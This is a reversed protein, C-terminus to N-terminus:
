HNKLVFHLICYGLAVVLLIIMIALWSWQNVQLPRRKPKKSKLQQHLQYNLRQVADKTESSSLNALGDVADSELGEEALWLEVERQEEPLLKGALYDALKEEQLNGKGKQWIENANSM